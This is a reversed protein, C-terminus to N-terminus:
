RLANCALPASSPTASYAWPAPAAARRGKREVQAHVPPHLVALVATYTVARPTHVARLARAAARGAMMATLIVCPTAGLLAHPIAVPPVLNLVLSPTYRTLCEM